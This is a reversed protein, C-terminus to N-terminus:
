AATILERSNIEKTFYCKGYLNVSKKQKDAYIYIGVHSPYFGNILYKESTGCLFYANQRCVKSISIINYYNIDLFYINNDLVKNM